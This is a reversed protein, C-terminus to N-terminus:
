QSEGLLHSLPALAMQCLLEALLHLEPEQILITSHLVRDRIHLIRALVREPVRHSEYLKRLELVDVETKEDRPKKIIQYAGKAAEPSCEGLTGLLASNKGEYVDGGVTGRGKDGFMDVLDDQLQFLVGLQVFPASLRMADGPRRGGLIAAGVVPLALLAGTKGECARIYESLPATGDPNQALEEVQGRVIRTAYDALLTSLVGRLDTKLDAIALFPLMLMYDGANIGQAVGYRAWVTPRDRRMTDGDQIDDHILTANHLLEVAAAWAVAQGEDVGFASCASIALRARVRKGGSCIQEHAMTGALDLRPGLVLRSMFSEVEPLLRSSDAVHICTEGAIKLSSQLPANM